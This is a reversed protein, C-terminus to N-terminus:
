KKPKKLRNIRELYENDIPWGDLGIPPQWTGNEMQQCENNHHSDCVSQLEGCWFLDKDGKHPKIHDAVTAPQVIGLSLCM